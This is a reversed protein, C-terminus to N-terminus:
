RFCILLRIRFSRLLLLLFIYIVGHFHVISGLYGPNQIRSKVCYVKFVLGNKSVM